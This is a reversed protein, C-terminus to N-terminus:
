GDHSDLAKRVWRDGARLGRGAGAIAGDQEGTACVLMAVASVAVVEIVSRV